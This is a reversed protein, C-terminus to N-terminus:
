LFGFIYEFVTQIASISTCVFYIEPLFGDIQNSKQNFNEKHRTDM